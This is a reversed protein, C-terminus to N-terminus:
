SKSIGLKKMRSSFTTRKVGARRSAAAINWKTKELLSLVYLRELSEWSYETIPFPAGDSQAGLSPGEDPPISPTDQVRTAGDYPPPLDTPMVTNGRTVTLLYKVLNEMERINGPWPYQVLKEMAETGITKRPGDSGQGFTEMFHTLLLPIDDRRDRIAPVELPLVNLRYFLDERFEGDVVRERLIRNTAAIIRVDVRRAEATGLPKIESSQLVRLIKAQLGLPMDGIEDLFVTGGDAAQFLGEKDRDAGTFAGKKYGFLESELLTDPIASCNQALFPAGRRSSLRHIERAMVEKGTGSEGTIMVPFDNAAYTEVTKMAALFAGSQGVIAAPSRAEQLMRRLKVNERHESAFDLSTSLAIGGITVLGELLGLYGPDLNLRDGGASTDIIQVAGYVSADSLKLPFCVILTSKVDLTDEIQSLHRPDKGPEAITMKGTEFVSGVVSRSKTSIALGKVKWAEPGVAESCIYRDDERIWISGREVKQIRMLSQLFQLPFQDPDLKEFLSQVFIIPLTQDM